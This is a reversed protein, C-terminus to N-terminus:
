SGGTFLAFPSSVTSHSSAISSDYNTSVAISTRHIIDTLGISHCRGTHAFCTRQRLRPSSYLDGLDQMGSFRLFACFREFSTTTSFHFPFNLRKESKYQRASNATDRRDRDFSSWAYLCTANKCCTTVPVPGGFADKEGNECPAVM